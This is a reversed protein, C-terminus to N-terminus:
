LINHIKFMHKVESQQSDPLELGPRVCGSATSVNPVYDVCHLDINSLVIRLRRKMNNFVEPDNLDM